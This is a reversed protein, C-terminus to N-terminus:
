KIRDRNIAIHKQWLQYYVSYVCDENTVSRYKPPNTFIDKHDTTTKM